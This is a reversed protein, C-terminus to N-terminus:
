GPRYVIFSLDDPKSPHDQRPDTMRELCTRALDAAVQDLDGKRVVDVIEAPYLNDSLGDSALLLTDRAALGLEPGIEIRMEVTGVANTVLHRDEHVMAERQDLIGSEVAYGVPSHPITEMKVRGRQGTLLILSDGVHYSRVSRGSIEAVALTTGGAGMALVAANANEFGNLIATRLEAGEAAGDLLAKAVARVARSSAQRGGPQGGMGDALVLAGSHESFPVLCVADENPRNKTPSSRSFVKFRGPGFCGSVATDMDQELFFV